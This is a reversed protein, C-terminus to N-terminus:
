QGGDKQFQQKIEQKQEDPLSNYLQRLHDTDANLLSQSRSVQQDVFGPLCVAMYGVGCSLAIIAVYLWFHRLM